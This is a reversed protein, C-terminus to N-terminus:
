SWAAYVPSLESSSLEDVIAPSVNRLLRLEKNQNAGFDSWPGDSKLTAWVTDMLASQASGVGCDKFPTALAAMPPHCTPPNKLNLLPSGVVTMKLPTGIPRPLPPAPWNPMGFRM